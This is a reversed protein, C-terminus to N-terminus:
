FGFPLVQMFDDFVVRVELLCFEFNQLMVCICDTLPRTSNAEDIRAYESEKRCHNDQATKQRVNILQCFGNFTNYGFM